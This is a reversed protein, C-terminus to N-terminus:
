VCYWWVCVVHLVDCVDQLVLLFTNKAMTFRSVFLIILRMCVMFVSEFMYFM